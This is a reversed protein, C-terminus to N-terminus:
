LLEEMSLMPKEAAQKAREERALASTRLTELNARQGETLIPNELLRSIEDSTM